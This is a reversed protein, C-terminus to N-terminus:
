CYPAKFFILHSSIHTILVTIVIYLFLLWNNAILFRVKTTHVTINKNM